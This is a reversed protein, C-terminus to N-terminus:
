RGKPGSVAYCACTLGPKGSDYFPQKFVDIIFFARPNGSKLLVAQMYGLIMRRLSEPDENIDRLLGAVEPWTSRPNLLARALEIAAREQDASVIADLQKEAGQLDIVSGLLVLAKRGSGQAHEVLKDLVENDLEVGEKDLVDLIIERLDDQSLPRVPVETCRTRLTTILKAPDTTPLFFYVHGPPDELLKLMANQADKSLQHCEDILWIRCKGGIPHLLMRNRIERVMEIGRFDAANIETFDQDSCGLKHQMIRALTTKGCGSPGTFLLAHPVKGTAVADHLIRVAQKQGRVENFTTPRHQRYLETVNTMAPKSHARLLM